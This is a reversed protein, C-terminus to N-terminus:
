RALISSVTGWATSLSWRNRGVTAEDKVLGASVVLFGDDEAEVEIDVGEFKTVAGEREDSVYGEDELMDFGEEVEEVV